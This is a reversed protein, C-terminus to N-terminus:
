ATGERGAVAGIVLSPAQRLHPSLRYEAIQVLRTVVFNIALYIVGAVVFVEVARYTESILKAAIGTIEMLTITSALSTAKVMLVIENGYGPLAQRIALPLMIRRCLLWPGMGAARAAEVQGHPVSLFGGRFIESAYAATNLTLALVACWYPERLFPWLFSARIEPFQGLGYYILFIQVLLPTGRFAAVFGRIPWVLVPRGSHLMPALILAIVLGLGLSTGALELTLPVGSLLREGVDALFAFDM